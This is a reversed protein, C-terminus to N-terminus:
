AVTDVNIAFRQIGTHVILVVESRVGDLAVVELLHVQSDGLIEVEGLLLLQTEEELHEVEEVRRVESALELVHRTRRVEALGQVEEARRAEGLREADRALRLEAEAGAELVPSGKRLCKRPM